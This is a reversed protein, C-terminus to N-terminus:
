HNSLPIKSISIMIIVNIKKNNETIHEYINLLSLLITIENFTFRVAMKVITVIVIMHVVKMVHLTSVLEVIVSVVKMMKMMKTLKIKMIERKIEM